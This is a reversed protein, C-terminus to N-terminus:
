MKEPVEIGLLFMADKIVRGCLDTLLIRFKRKQESEEQLISHDHYFQNFDKTLDYVYNAITAPSLMRGAEAVVNPYNLLTFVLSREKPLWNNESAFAGDLTQEVNFEWKRLVSRIRAHTYQIFPGTNGHFDISEKPNFLMKKKPDVKLIFYKLAGMGILNFLKMKEDESMGDTKGLELTIAAATDVMERILDDTDVVTGERSKMKGEPLEVMGYSLHYLHDAWDFGLKKLARFLVKFHYDQENGVVHILRDFHHEKYRQWATGLDQTMYLSTGDARLLCKEDMGEDRLDFWVSGDEKRQLVKKELGMSVLDKGFHYMESEYYVQNFSVGLAAYSEDFGKLVWANMQRWLAVVAEDGHEWALLMQRAEAMVTSKKEAEEKSLGDKMLQELEAKYMTDFAVYYRGVFHDGKEGTMEPTEQKGAKQWALMSKCIHIGRDNVLTVKLVQHGNHELIRAVSFGLLNNRAHGLHLPKNTNPSSYEVMIKQPHSAINTGFNKQAFAELFKQELLSAALSVNLFGKVVNFGSVLDPHHALLYDGLVQATQEPSKGSLKLLPFVVLTLEGEFEPRTKSWELGNIKESLGFLQTLGAELAAQLRAIIDKVM